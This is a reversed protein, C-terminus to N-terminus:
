ARKQRSRVVLGLGLLGTGLLLLSGPEPVPIEQASSTVAAFEFSVKQSGAVVENFGGDVNINIYASGGYTRVGTAPVNAAAAVEAGTISGLLTSGNYFSLVNENNPQGDVSGWLLGLYSQSTGFTFDITGNSTPSVSYSGSISPDSTLGTSFYPGSYATGAADTIPAAYKDAVSGTVIAGPYTATITVNGTTGAVAAIPTTGTLLASPSGYFNIAGAHAIGVTAFGAVASALLISKLSIRM